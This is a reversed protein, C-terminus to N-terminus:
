VLKKQSHPFGDCTYVALDLWDCSRLVFVRCDKQVSSKTGVGVAARLNGFSNAHQLIIHDDFMSHCWSYM